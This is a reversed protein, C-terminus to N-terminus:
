PHKDGVNVEPDGSKHWSSRKNTLLIFSNSSNAFICPWSMGYFIVEILHFSTKLCFILTYFNINIEYFSHLFLYFMNSVIKKIFGKKQQVTVRKIVNNIFCFIYFSRKKIFFFYTISKIGLILIKKPWEYKNFLIIM